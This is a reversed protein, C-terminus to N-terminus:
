TLLDFRFRQGENVTHADLTRGDVLPAVQEDLFVHCGSQEVVEDTPQPGEAISLAHELETSDPSRPFIRLGAGLRSGILGQIAETARDTLTLMHDGVLWQLVSSFAKSRM